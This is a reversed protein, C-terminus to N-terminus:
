SGATKVKVYYGTIAGTDGRTVQKIHLEAREILQEGADHEGTVIEVAQTTMEGAAPKELIAYVRAVQKRLDEEILVRETKLTWGGTNVQATWKVKYQKPSGESAVIDLTYVPKIEPQIPLPPSVAAHPAPL